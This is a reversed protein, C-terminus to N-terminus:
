TAWDVLVAVQLASPDWTVLFFEEARFVLFNDLPDIAEKIDGPLLEAGSERVEVGLTAFVWSETTGLGPKGVPRVGIYGDGSVLRNGNVTVLPSDEEGDDQGFPFAQLAAVVAPPAHIIGAEGTEGIAQELYSLAVGPSVATGSTLDTLNADGLYPNNSFQVGSALAQEVAMSKKANFARLARDEFGVPVLTSCAIPLYAAFADFRTIDMESEESKVRNTGADCGDWTEPENTPYGWMNAGSMWRGDGREVVVGPTKLLSHPPAVPLPGDIRTLPAVATSSM